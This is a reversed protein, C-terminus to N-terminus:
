KKLIVENSDDMGDTRELFDDLIQDGDQASSTRGPLQLLYTLLNIIYWKISAHSNISMQKLRM